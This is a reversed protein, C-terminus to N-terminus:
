KLWKQLVPWESLDEKNFVRVKVVILIFVAGGVVISSLSFFTSAMRTPQISILTFYIWEYGKILLVMVAGALLSKGIMNFELVTGSRIVKFLIGVSLVAIIGVSLVTAIAAGVSGHVPILWSNLVWKLVLGVLVIYVSQAIYGLGQAIALATLSVSMFMISISLVSLMYTGNSNRFLMHNTNEMIAVLGFSAGTGVLLSIKIAMRSNKLISAYHGNQKAKAIIPVLSLSLSTALVVGLQLLPQGRDFVGKEIKAEVPHQGAQILYNYLTFSDVLQLLVLTLGTLCIAVGSFLFTKFPFEKLNETSFIYIFDKWKWTGEQRMQFLLLVAVATLGGTLSGFIAGAGIVYLSFGKSILLFALLLITGVRIFQEAIQSLATPLMNGKGQFNGRFVSIFPLILFTYSVMEIPLQLSPDGMLEAIHLSFQFLIVFILLCLIMLTCFSLAIISKIQLMNNTKQESILKSIVVPFGYLSLALAIGYFPYVQQYIYFGVDGVINQFPIRYLASLIKSLLGALTLLLAGHWITQKSSKLVNM